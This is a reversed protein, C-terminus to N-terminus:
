RRAQCLFQSIVSITDKLVKKEPNRADICIEISAKPRYSQFKQFRDEIEEKSEKFLKVRKENRNLVDILDVELRIALDAKPLNSYLSAENRALWNLFVGSGTIKPGDMQHVQTTPCRDILVLHGTSKAKSARNMLLKREYALATHYVVGLMSTNRQRAVSTAKKAKEIRLCERAFPLIARICWFPLLLLSFNPRGFNYSVNDFVENCANQLEPILTSKGSGDSGV